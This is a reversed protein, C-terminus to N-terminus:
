SLATLVEVLLFDRPTIKSTMISLSVVTGYRMGIALKTSKALCLPLLLTISLGNNYPYDEM